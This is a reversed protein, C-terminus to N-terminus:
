KLPAGFVQWGVLALLIWVVLTVGGYFLGMPTTYWLGGLLVLVMIIWFWNGASM